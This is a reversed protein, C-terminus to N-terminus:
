PRRLLRRWGRRTRPRRLRVVGTTTSARVRLVPMGPLGTGAGLRDQMVGKGATSAEVLQVEVGLPVIVDIMGATCDLELDIEFDDFEAMTLDLLVHSTSSRVIAERGLQWRNTRALKSTNADLALPERLRRNEPTMQIPTPLAAMVLAFEERTAAGLFRSKAIAFGEADILGRRLLDGVHDLATARQEPSILETVVRVSRGTRSPM